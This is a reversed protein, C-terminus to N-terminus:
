VQSKMRLITLIDSRLTNRSIMHFDSNLGSVFRRFGLHDDMSLPYEHMVIMEALEQRSNEENFAHNELKKEGNSKTRFRLTQQGGARLHRKACFRLLHDSLHKTGNSAKASLKQKCHTCVAKREGNKEELEFEQWVWSTRKKGKNGAAAASPDIEGVEDPEIEVFTPSHSQPRPPRQGCHPPPSPSPGSDLNPSTPSGITESQTGSEM